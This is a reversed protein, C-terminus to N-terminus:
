MHLLLTLVNGATDFMHHSLLWLSVEVNLTMTHTFIYRYAGCDAHVLIARFRADRLNNYRQVCHHLSELSIDAGVYHSINLNLYKFFDGGKGCCLDLVSSDPKVYSSIQVSRYPFM